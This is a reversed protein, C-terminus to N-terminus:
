VCKHEFRGLNVRICLWPQSGSNLLLRSEQAFGRFGELGGKVVKERKDECQWVRCISEFRPLDLLRGESNNYNSFKASCTVSVEKLWALIM